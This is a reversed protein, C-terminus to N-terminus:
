MARPRDAVLRTPRARRTSASRGVGEGALCSPFRALRRAGVAAQPACTQAGELANRFFFVPADLMLALDPFAHPQASCRRSRWTRASLARMSSTIRAVYNGDFTGALVNSSFDDIDLAVGLHLLAGLRGALEAWFRTAPTAPEAEASENFPTLPSDPPPTCGTPLAESPPYLGLWVRLQQQGDVKFDKTAELFQVLQLYGYLPSCSWM